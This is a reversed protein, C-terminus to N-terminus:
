KLQITYFMKNISDTDGNDVLVITIFKGNDLVSRYLTQYGNSEYSTFYFTHEWLEADELSNGNYQEMVDVVSDYASELTQDEGSVMIVIANGDPNDYVQFGNTQKLVHWGEIIELSLEDTVVLNGKQKLGEAIITYGETDIIPEAPKPQEQVPQDDAPPTTESSNNSATCASLATIMVFVLLGTLIKKM